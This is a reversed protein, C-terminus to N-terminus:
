ENEEPELDASPTHDDNTCCGDRIVDLRKKGQMENLRDDIAQVLEEATIEGALYREKQEAVFNEIRGAALRPAFYLLSIGAILGSLVLSAIIIVLHKLRM